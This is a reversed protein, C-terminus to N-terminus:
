SDLPMAKLSSFSIQHISVMPPWWQIARRTASSSHTTIGLWNPRSRNSKSSAKPAPFSFRHEASRFVKMSSFWRSVLLSPHKLGRFQKPERESESWTYLVGRAQNMPRYRQGVLYRQSPSLASKVGWLSLMGQDKTGSRFTVTSSTFYM